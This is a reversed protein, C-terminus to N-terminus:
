LYASKVYEKIEQIEEGDMQELMNLIIECNKNHEHKMAWKTILVISIFGSIIILGNM